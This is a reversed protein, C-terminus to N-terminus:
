FCSMILKKDKPPIKVNGAKFLKEFQRKLKNSIEKRKSYNPYDKKLRRSTSALCTFELLLHNSASQLQMAGIQLFAKETMTKNGKTLIDDLYDIFNEFDKETKFEIVKCTLSGRTTVLQLKEIKALKKAIKPANELFIDSFTCLDDVNHEFKKIKDPVAQAVLNILSVLATILLIKKM